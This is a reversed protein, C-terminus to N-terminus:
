KLNQIVCIFPNAERQQVLGSNDLRVIKNRVSDSENGGITLAYKGLSDIGTEIVLASHSKYADHTAAYKYTYKKGLRNSQIIDGIKPVYASVEQARFVGKNAQQNAIADFVFKAHAATFTFESKTTGAQNVCWSVFVASWAEGVGPFDFGLDTWYKEIQSSLPEDNEDILHYKNYQNEAIDALKQCFPSPLSM